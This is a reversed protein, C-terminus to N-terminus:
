RHEPRCLRSLKDALDDARIDVSLDERTRFPLGQISAHTPADQIVRLGLSEIESVSISDVGYINNLRTIEEAERMTLCHDAVIVSIGQEIADYKKRLYFADPKIRGTDENRFRKNRIVIYVRESKCHEPEQRM